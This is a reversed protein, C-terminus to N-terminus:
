SLDADLPEGDDWIVEDAVIGGSNKRVHRIYRKVTQFSIGFAKAIQTMSYGEKFKKYVKQQLEMM